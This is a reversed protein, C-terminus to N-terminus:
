SRSSQKFSKKTIKTKLWVKFGIVKLKKSALKSVNKKIRFFTRFAKCKVIIEM